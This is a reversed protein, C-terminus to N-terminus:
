SAMTIQSLASYSAVTRVTGIDIIDAAVNNRAVYAINILLNADGARMNAIDRGAQPM